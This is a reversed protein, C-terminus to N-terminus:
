NSPYYNRNIILLKKKWDLNGRDRSYILNEHLEQDARLDEREKMCVITGIMRWARARGGPRARAHGHMSGTPLWLM